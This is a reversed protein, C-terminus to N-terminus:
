LFSILTPQAWASCFSLALFCYSEQLGGRNALAKPARERRAAHLDGDIQMTKTLPVPAAVRGKGAHGKADPRALEARRERDPTERVCSSASRSLPQVLFPRM